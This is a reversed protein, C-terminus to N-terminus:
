DSKSKFYLQKIEAMSLQHPRKNLILADIDNLNINIAKLANTVVKRKQAFLAKTFDQFEQLNIKSFDDIGEEFKIVMSMVKPAPLFASPKVLFLKKASGVLNTLVALRAFNKDGSKAIIRDAVEKQFMLVMAKVNRYKSILDAYIQTSINYPLNSVISIEKGFITYDVDLCDKNIIEIDIGYFKSLEKYIPSFREDMEVLILKRPQQKLISRTLCAPGPGIEIVIKNNLDIKSVIKDTLSENIIFNQGLSKNNNLGLEKIFQYTSKLSDM